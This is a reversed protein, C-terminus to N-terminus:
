WIGASSPIRMHAAGIALAMVCDQTLARDDWQYSLLERKAEATWRAKYRRQELLLQLSQIAQVKSKATTVFPEAPVDLNEILPDGVGNSEVILRGTYARAREAIRAQIVPYPIRELRDFAVLQFPEDTVDVTAIVTADQRRGVDVSTLYRRESSAAVPGQAGDEAAAIDAQRFVTLGTDVFEALIESAYVTAPLMTKIEDLESKAIYPNAHTPFRFSAWGREANMGRQYLAHFGDLGAPTSILYCDGKLRALTPRIVAFLARELDPILRAEDVIVRKYRRGRLANPDDLSWGEVVGGSLLELRHAQEQKKVIIPALRDVLERWVQTLMKHTPACYATPNTIADRTMLQHQALTSKGFQRGCCVVTHRAKGAVIVRQASHLRPQEITLQTPADGLHPGSKEFRSPSIGAM